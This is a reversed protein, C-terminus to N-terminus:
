PTLTNLTGAANAIQVGHGVYTQWKDDHVMINPTTVMSKFYLNNSSVYINGNSHVWGTFTMPPQPDIELDREYFVGFQFLPISQAKVSVINASKDGAADKVSTYIDINQTSSYLGTYPGNAITELQIGGVKTVAFSDVTFGPVSPATLAAYDSDALSGDLLGTELQGMIGEAAAESAYFVRSNRYDLNATRTTTAIDFATLRVASM